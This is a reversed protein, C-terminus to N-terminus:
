SLFNSTFFSKKLFFSFFFIKSGINETYQEPTVREEEGEEEEKEGEKPEGRKKSKKEPLPFMTHLNMADFLLGEDMLRLM